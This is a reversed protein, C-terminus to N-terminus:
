ITMYFNTISKQILAEIKLLSQLYNKNMKTEIKSFYVLDLSQEFIKDQMNRLKREYEDLMLNRSRSM